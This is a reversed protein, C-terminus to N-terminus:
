QRVTDMRRPLENADSRVIKTVHPLNDSTWGVSVLDVSTCADHRRFDLTASGVHFYYGSNAVFDWIINTSISNGAVALQWDWEWTGYAFVSPTKVYEWTADSATKTLYFAGATWTGSVVTWEPRTETTYASEPVIVEEDPPLEVFTKRNTLLGDKWDDLIYGLPILPKKGAPFFHTLGIPLAHIVRQFAM